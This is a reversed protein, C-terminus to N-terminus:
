TRRAQEMIQARRDQVRKREEYIDPEMGQNGGNGYLSNLGALGGPVNRVAQTSRQGYSGLTTSSSMGGTNGRSSLHQPIRAFQAEIQRAEEELKRAELLPRQAELELINAQEALRRAEDTLRRAEEAEM